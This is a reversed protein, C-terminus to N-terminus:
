PPLHVFSMLFLMGFAFSYGFQNVSKYISPQFKPAMLFYGGSQICKTSYSSSYSSIYPDFYKPFGTHLFKYVLTATKFVSRHLLFGICNRLRLLYVLMDVPIQYLDLQVIKFVRYNIIISSLSAGSLHAVINLGVVLLLIPWLYLLMVLLFGGSMNLTMSNCVVAKVSMRFM